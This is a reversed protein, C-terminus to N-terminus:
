KFRIGLGSNFDIKVQEPTRQYNYAKLEDLTGVFYSTGKKGLTLASASISTSNVIEIHYWQAQSLINTSYNNSDLPIQKGNVYLKPSQWGNGVLHIKGSSLEIYNTGGDLDLIPQNLSLPNVFFSLTKIDGINGCSSSASGSFYLGTGLIGKKFSTGSLTCDNNHPTADYATSGSEEGFHLLIQPM